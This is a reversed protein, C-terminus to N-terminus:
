AARSGPPLSVVSTPMTLRARVTTATHVGPLYDAHAALARMTGPPLAPLSATQAQPAHHGWFGLARKARAFHGLKPFRTDAGSARLVTKGSLETKGDASRLSLNFVQGTFERLPSM